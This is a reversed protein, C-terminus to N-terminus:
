GTVVAVELGKMGKELKAGFIIRAKPHCLDYISEAIQNVDCLTMTENGTVNFILKRCGGAGKKITAGIKKALLGAANKGKASASLLSLAKSKKFLTFIDSPKLNILGPTTALAMIQKVGEEASLGKTVVKIQKTGLFKALKHDEDTRRQDKM